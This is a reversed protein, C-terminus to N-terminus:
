AQKSKQTRILLFTVGAKQKEKTSLWFGLCAKGPMPSEKDRFAQGRRFSNTPRWKQVFFDELKAQPLLGSRFEQVVQKGRVM